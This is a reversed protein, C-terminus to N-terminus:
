RPTVTMAFWLFGWAAPAFCLAGLKEVPPMSRWLTFVPHCVYGGRDALSPLSRSGSFTIVPTPQSLSKILDRM